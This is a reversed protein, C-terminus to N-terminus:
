RSAEKKVRVWAPAYSEGDQEWARKQVFSASYGKAAEWAIQRDADFRTMAESVQGNGYNIRYNKDKM